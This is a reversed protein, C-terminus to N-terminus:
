RSGDRSMDKISGTKIEHNVESYVYVCVCVCVCM